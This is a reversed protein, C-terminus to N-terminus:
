MGQFHSALFINDIDSFFGNYTIPISKYPGCKGTAMEIFQNEWLTATTSKDFVDDAGIMTLAVLRLLLELTLIEM